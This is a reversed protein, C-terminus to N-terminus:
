QNVKPRLYKINQVNDAFYNLLFHSNGSNYLKKDPVIIIIRNFNRVARRVLLSYNIIRLKLVEGKSRIVISYSVVFNGHFRTLPLKEDTNTIVSKLTM